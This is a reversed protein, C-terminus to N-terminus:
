VKKLNVEIMLENNLTATRREVEYTMGFFSKLFEWDAEKVYFFDVNEKLGNYIYTNTYKQDQDPDSLNEKFNLIPFNNIPGPYMGIPQDKVDEDNFFQLLMDQRIFLRDVLEPYSSSKPDIKLYKDIFCILNNVWQTSILFYKNNPTSNEGNSIDGQDTSNNNPNFIAKIKDLDALFGEDRAKYM